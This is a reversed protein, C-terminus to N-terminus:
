YLIFLMGAEEVDLVYSNRFLYQSKMDKPITNTRSYYKGVSLATLCDRQGKETEFTIFVNTVPYTLQVLGRIKENLVAIICGQLIM